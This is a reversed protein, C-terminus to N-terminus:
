TRNRVIPIITNNLGSELNNSDHKIKELEDQAIIKDDILMNNKITSNLDDYADDLEEYKNKIIYLKNLLNRYKIKIAEEDM